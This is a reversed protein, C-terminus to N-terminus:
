LPDRSTTKSELEELLRAAETFDPKLEVARRCHEIAGDTDHDRYRAGALNFHAQHSSPFERVIFELIATEDGTRGMFGLTSVVPELEGESKLGPVELWLNGLLELGREARGNLICATAFGQRIRRTEPRNELLARYFVEADNVRGANIMNACSQLLQSLPFEFADPHERSTRELMAVAAQLGNIRYERDILEAADEKTALSKEIEDIFGTEAWYLDIDGM